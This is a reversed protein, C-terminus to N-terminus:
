CCFQKSKTSSQSDTNVMLMSLFIYSCHSVHFQRILWQLTVHSTSMAYMEDSYAGISPDLILSKPLIPNNHLLMEIVEQMALGHQLDKDAWIDWGHKFFSLFILVLRDLRSCFIM